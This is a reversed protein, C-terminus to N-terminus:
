MCRIALTSGETPSGACHHRVMPRGGVGRLLPFRRGWLCRLLLSWTGWVTWLSQTWSVVFHDAGIQWCTSTKFTLFNQLDGWSNLILGLYHRLRWHMWAIHRIEDVTPNESYPMQRIHLIDGCIYFHHQKTTFDAKNCYVSKRPSFNLWVNRIHFFFIVFILSQFDELNRGKPDHSGRLPVIIPYHSFDM